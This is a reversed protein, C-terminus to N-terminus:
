VDGHDDHDYHDHEHDHEHNHDDGDDDKEDDPQPSCYSPNTQQGGVGIPLTALTGQECILTASGEQFKIISHKSIIM